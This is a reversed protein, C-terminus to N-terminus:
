RGGSYLAPMSVTKYLLSLTERWLRGTIFCPPEKLEPNRQQLTDMLYAPTLHVWGCQRQGNPGSSLPFQHLYALGGAAQQAM